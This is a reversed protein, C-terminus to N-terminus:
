NDHGGDNEGGANAVATGQAAATNALASNGSTTALKDIASQLSSAYAQSTYTAGSVAHIQGGNGAMTQQVLQPLVSGTIQGSQPGHVNLKAFGVSTIKGNQASVRVQIDGLGGQLAQDTGVATAGPGTGSTAGVKISSPLGSAGSGTPHFGVVFGVGVATATIAAAAAAGRKM